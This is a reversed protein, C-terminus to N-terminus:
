WDKDSKQRNARSKKEKIKKQLEKENEELSQLIREADEKSMKQEQQQQQQEQQQQQQKQQDQEQEQGQQSQDQEKEKDQENEQDQEQEQQQCQQQQQQRLLQQAYALNHKTDMDGPNNRLAQKYAEVSQELQKEKLLTNGLNHFVKALQEKDDTINSLSYFQKIAEEYNEQEYLVDGLNFGAIFSNSEKELARRYAEESKDLEQNEFHRNGQRIFRREEQAYADSGVSMWLFITCLILYFGKM